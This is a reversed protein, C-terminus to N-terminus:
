MSLAKKMKTLHNEIEGVLRHITDTTKGDNDHDYDRLVKYLTETAIKLDGAFDFAVDSSGTTLAPPKSGVGGLPMGGPKPMAENLLQKLKKM